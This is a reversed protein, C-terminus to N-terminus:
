MKFDLQKMKLKVEKERLELEMMKAKNIKEEYEKREKEIAERMQERGKEVTQEMDEVSKELRQKMVEETEIPLIAYTSPGSDSRLRKSTTQESRPRGRKGIKSLSV